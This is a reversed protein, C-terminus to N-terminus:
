ANNKVVSALFQETLIGVERGVEKGDKFFITTPISQVGLKAAIDEAEEVNIKVFKAKESNENGFKEFMPGYRKCPGCWEAWFDAIVLGKHNTVESTFTTSIVHTVM